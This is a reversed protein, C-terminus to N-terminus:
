GNREDERKERMRAVRHQQQVNAAAAERLSKMWSGSIRTENLIHLRQEYAGGFFIYRSIRESCKPFVGPALKVKIDLETKM